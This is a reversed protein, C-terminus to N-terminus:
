YEGPSVDHNVHQVAVNYYSLEFELRAIVNMKASIGKPFPHVGKDETSHTLYDPQREEVFVAKANFLARFNIHWKVFIRVM